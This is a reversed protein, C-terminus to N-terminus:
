EDLIIFYNEGRVGFVRRGGVLGITEELDPAELVVVSGFVDEM